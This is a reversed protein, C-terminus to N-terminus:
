EFISDPIHNKYWNSKDGEQIDDFNLKKGRKKAMAILDSVELDLGFIKIYNKFGKEIIKDDAEDKLKSLIQYLYASKILERIKPLKEKIKMYHKLSNKISAVDGKASFEEAQAVKDEWAQELEKFDDVDELFPEKKVFEYVKDYEKNAIFRMFNALVKAEYLLTKADKEYMPFESLMNAYQLAKSYRGDNLAKTAGSKLRQAFDLAQYYEDLDALFPYRNILEFFGRFDKKVLKQKFLKYLEKENFLAQILATKESVGRFPTLIKKVYDEKTKDFIFQRAVAFTKKWEKEMHKYYSTQKFTPYQSALSYALPYKKKSILLKFKEFEVFDKFLSQILMRKAPVSIFPTVIHEATDKQGKELLMQAQSLVNEWIKELHAYALSSRLMPNKAVLEYASAYDKKGIMEDLQKEDSLVDYIYIIGDQTGVILYMLDGVFEVSTITSGVKVFEDSVMDEKELDYLFINKNKTVAFLYKEGGDCVFDVVMDPLKPLRKIVRGKTYDSLILNGEKDGSIMRFKNLFKIKSVMSSHARIKYAFRMSSINTISISKDYSGTACWLSNKSFAIATVYDAHPALTGVMKGTHISWLNARGDVGGTAVYKNKADFAVSEVEGKHWGVSYLLKKDEIDWIVAKNKKEVSLVLYKGNESVDACNAFVRNKPLNIKFGGDLKLENLDFIRITNQEDVVIIKGNQISKIKVIARKTTFIKLPQM